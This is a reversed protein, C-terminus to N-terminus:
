KVKMLLFNGYAHQTKKKKERHYPLFLTTNLFFSRAM